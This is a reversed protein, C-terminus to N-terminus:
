EMNWRLEIGYTRNAAPYAFGGLVWEANYKTDFLNKAWLNVNWKGDDSNFGLRLNALDVNGRASSNGTDWYQEGIRNVDFTVMNQWGSIWEATYQLGLNITYEPVYPAENGVDSPNLSFSEIESDTVGVSGYFDM